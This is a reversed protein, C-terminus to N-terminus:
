LCSTNGHIRSSKSPRSRHCGYLPCGCVRSPNYMSCQVELPRPVFVFWYFPSPGCIDPRTHLARSPPHLHHPHRPRRPRSLATPAAGVRARAECARSGGACIGVRVGVLALEEFVWLYWLALLCRVVIPFFTQRACPVFLQMQFRFRQM